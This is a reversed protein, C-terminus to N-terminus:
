SLSQNHKKSEERLDNKRRTIHSLYWHNDQSKKFIGDNLHFFSRKNVKKSEKL